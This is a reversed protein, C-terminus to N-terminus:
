VVTSFPQPTTIKGVPSVAPSPIKLSPEGLLDKLLEAGVCGEYVQQLGPDGNDGRQNAFREQAVEVDLASFSAARRASM